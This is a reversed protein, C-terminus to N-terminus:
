LILSSHHTCEQQITRSVLQFYSSPPLPKKRVGLFSSAFPIPDINKEKAVKNLKFTKEELNKLECDKSFKLYNVFFTIMM